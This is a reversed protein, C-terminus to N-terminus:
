RGGFFQLWHSAGYPRNVDLEVTRTQSGIQAEVWERGQAISGEGNPLVTYTAFQRVQDSYGRQRFRLFRLNAKQENTLTTECKVQNPTVEIVSGFAMCHQSIRQVLREPSTTQYTFSTKSQANAVVASSTALVLAALLNKWRM